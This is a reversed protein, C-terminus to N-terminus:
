PSAEQTTRNKRKTWFQPLRFRGAQKRTISRMGNSVVTTMVSNKEEGRHEINVLLPPDSGKRDGEDKGSSQHSLFSTAQTSTSYPLDTTGSMAPSHRERSSPASFRGSSHHHALHSTPSADSSVSKGDRGPSTLVMAVLSHDGSPQRGENETSGDPSLQLQSPAANSSRRKQSIPPLASPFAGSSRRSAMEQPQGHRTPSGLSSRRSQDLSQLPTGELQSFTGLSSRRSSNMGDQGLSIRSSSLPSQALPPLVDSPHQYDQLQATNTQSSRPSYAIDVSGKLWGRRTREKEKEKEIKKAWIAKNAQVENVVFQMAPFIDTVAQFLPLAFINMFGIQSEGMKLISDRIPPGGFLTTPIDLDKEMSGQHAFEDTLITAWQAAVDYKRAVNCIDACKILLGCALTKYEILAKENWGDTGGNEHLKEQLNGLDRMYDFHVGMDTALISKILLTRMSPQFAAPWYRKLIQSYAACHFSELVSRDNYLQALPANLAVLFANNVGPHGVDHGIASILLTLADFPRLLAAIPSQSNDTSFSTPNKPYPSLTGIQVLFYFTAQLVDVVHRFNHYLVFSNYATRSAILFTTLNEATIRWPELEPMALAHQLMMFAAHLLEDDTFDHASFAWTGIAEGVVYRREPSVHIEVNEFTEAVTQPKCISDMLGSVMSERLYAYPKEEDVGVWSRKRGRKVALFAQQAKSIDKHARYAHIALGFIRDNSFPSTIVDVAGADLCRLTLGQDATQSYRVSTDIRMSPASEISPSIGKLIAHGDKVLISDLKHTNPVTIIAVPLVLKSLNQYHIETAIHQLLRLGYVEDPESSAIWERRMSTPSPTQPDRSTRKIRDEGREDPSIHLLVITPMLDPATTEHLESLKLLCSSGSNCVHVQDFSTLVTQINSRIIESELPNTGLDEKDADGSIMRTEHARNDVYIVNCSRQAM